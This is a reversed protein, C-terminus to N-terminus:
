FPDFNTFFSYWPFLYFRGPNSDIYKEVTEIDGNACADYFPKLHDTEDIKQGFSSVLIFTVWILTQFARCVM